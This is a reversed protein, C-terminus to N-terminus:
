SWDQVRNDPVDAVEVDGGASNSVVWFGGAGAAAVVVIAVAAALGGGRRKATVDIEGRMMGWDGEFDDASLTSEIDAVTTDVFIMKQAGMQIRANHRLLTEVIPEGDVVTGNTSGLDRMVYGNAERSIEAHVGSVASEKFTVTNSARRGFTTRVSSLDVTEGNREGGVIKLECAGTPAPAASPAARSPSPAMITADDDDGDLDLEELDLGDDEVADGDQFTIQVEGIGIVDGPQLMARAVKQGNVMTGNRSGLDVLEWGKGVFLIQAHKRSAGTGAIQLTNDATRGLTVADDGLEVTETGSPSKVILSPM